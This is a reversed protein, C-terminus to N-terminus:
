DAVTATATLAKLARELKAVGALNEKARQMELDRALIARAEETQGDARLVEALDELAPGFIVPYEAFGAAEAEAVMRRAVALAEDVHGRRALIRARAGNTFMDTWDDGAAHEAMELAEDDKGQLMLVHTLRGAMFGYWWTLGPGAGTAMSARFQEEAGAHNEAFLEILGLTAASGGPELGLEALDQAVGATLARAEDFRGHLAYLYALQENGHSRQARTMSPTALARQAIEIAQSVPMRSRSGLGVLGFLMDAEYAVDGDLQAQRAAQKYAAEARRVDLNDQYVGAVMSWARAAVRHHGARQLPRIMSGIVRRAEPLSMRAREHKEWVLNLRAEALVAAPVGDGAEVISTLIEMSGDLDAADSLTNALDLRASWYHPDGEPLLRIARTLLNRAARADRRQDARHGAAALWGGARVALGSVQADRQGLSVRYDHAQELHYGLIEEQEVLRDPALAELWDAFREHLVAREEKPLAEYAADRILLHRFRYVDDAQYPGIVQHRVLGRLHTVIQSRDAEPSLETVAQQEFTRGIVAGRQALVREHPPLRDLRAALLAQITPPVDVRDVDGVLNWSGHDDVLVGADVLMGIMEEVFLPNGEAAEVIRGGLPGTLVPSGLLNEILQESDTPALPELLVTTANLLGGSWTPRDDLLDPRAICLMMVPANDTWEVVDQVLDLLAPEAWQIDDFIVVLPGHRGLAEFLKRVGWAIEDTGASEHSLGLAAALSQAVREHDPQDAVLAALKNRAVDASDAPEISALDRVVEMVPWYTIGDGYPLCRGRLVRTEDGFSAIFERVLRSKGVGAGGVVTFLHCRREQKVRSLVGTLQELEQRRGVMPGELRRATATSPPAVELLRYATVPTEKGKLRIGDVAETSTLDRVLRQTAAGMLIEGPSAAQELRAATNVPDGTVLTDADQHEGAVVEGTNLGIRVRIEIGQESRLAENMGELSGRIEAAARVARLADDEHVQPVGFVAMVADGIFKEVTGGHREIIGRTLAFYRGMARRMAEPDVQEGLETSGTVDAFLVTVVKRVQGRGTPGAEPLAAGCTGCFRFREPNSAGCSPCGAM